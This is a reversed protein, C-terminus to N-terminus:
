RSGSPRPGSPPVGHSDGVEKLRVQTTLVTTRGELAQHLEVGSILLPVPDVPNALDFPTKTGAGDETSGGIGETLQAVLLILALQPACLDLVEDLADSGTPDAHPEAGILPVWTKRRRTSSKLQKPISNESRVLPARERLDPRRWRGWSIQQSLRLDDEKAAVGRHVERPVWPPRTAILADETAERLFSPGWGRQWKEAPEADAHPIITREADDSPLRLRTRRLPM